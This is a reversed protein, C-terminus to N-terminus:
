NAVPPITISSRQCSKRDVEECARFTLDTTMCIRVEELREGDCTVSMAKTSLGPNAAVFQQELGDPSVTQRIEPQQLTDPIKLKEFAARTVRFYDAQSLGSCTGHKRWEHGILGMSPMIDLYHQGLNDPVRDPQDSACSEPYGKEYQPWLGHVILAFAKSSGCQQQNGEGEDSLCYSPSWSLSLVYFDFGQGIPLPKTGEAPAPAPVPKPAAQVIVAPTDGVDWSPVIPDQLFIMLGAAIMLGVFAAIGYYRHM